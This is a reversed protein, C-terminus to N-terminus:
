GDHYEDLFRLHRDSDTPMIVSMLLLEIRIETAVNGYGVTTVYAIEVLVSRQSSLCRADYYRGIHGPILPAGRKQRSSNSGHMNLNRDETIAVFYLMCGTVADNNANHVYYLGLVNVLVLLFYIVRMSANHDAWAAPLDQQKDSEAYKYEPVTDIV